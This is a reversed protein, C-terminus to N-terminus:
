PHFHQRVIRQMYSPLPYGFPQLFHPTDEPWDVLPTDSVGVAFPARFLFQDASALLVRASPKFDAKRPDLVMLFLKPQWYRVIADSEILMCRADELVHQLETLAHAVCGAKTQVWFASRAGAQLYRSTDKGASQTREERILFTHDWPPCGCNPGRVPCHSEAYPTIKVATWSLDAMLRILDVCLATKGVKRCQGGVVLLKGKLPAPSARGKV